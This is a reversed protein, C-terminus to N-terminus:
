LNKDIENNANINQSNVFARIDSHLKSVFERRKITDTELSDLTNSLILLRKELPKKVYKLKQVQIFGDDTPENGVYEFIQGIYPCIENKAGNRFPFYQIQMYYVNDFGTSKADLDYVLLGCFANNFGNENKSSIFSKDYFTFVNGGLIIYRSRPLNNVIKVKCDSYLMTENFYEESSFNKM